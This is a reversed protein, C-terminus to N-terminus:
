SPNGQSQIMTVRNGGSQEICAGFENKGSVNVYRECCSRQGAQLVGDGARAALHEGFWWATKQDDVRVLVCTSVPKIHM